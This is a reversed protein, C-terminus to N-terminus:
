FDLYELLVTVRICCDFFCETSLKVISEFEIESLRIRLPFAV